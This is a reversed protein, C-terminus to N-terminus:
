GPGIRDGAADNEPERAVWHHVGFGGGGVVAHGGGSGAAGEVSEFFRADDLPGPDPAAAVPLPDAVLEKLLEVEELM